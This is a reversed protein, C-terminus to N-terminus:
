SLEKPRWLTVLEAEIDEDLQAWSDIPLALHALAATPMREWLGTLVEVLEEMGPNHGVLLVREFKDDVAQLQEIFDDPDSHYLRRTYQIENDYECSSAVAEATTLARIASSSIILDPVLNEDHLLKGMRPADRKGRSNLPREFDTLQAHDWSSKAHRLVLLTKMDGGM